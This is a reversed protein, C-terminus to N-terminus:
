MICVRTCVCLICARVIWLRVVFISLHFCVLASAQVRMAPGGRRRFARSITVSPVGATLILARRLLLLPLMWSVLLDLLPGPPLFCATRSMQVDMSSYPGNTIAISTVVMQEVLSLSM